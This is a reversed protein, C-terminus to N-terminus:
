DIFTESLVIDPSINADIETNVNAKDEDENEFADYKEGWANFRWNSFALKGPRRILFMPGYDRIWISDTEIQHLFINKTIGRAGLEQFVHDQMQEDEVLVHVKEGRYLHEIIEFYIAEIQPLEEPWTEFDHPWALWTADHPEWEAPMHFGLASPCSQLDYKLKRDFGMGVGKEIM